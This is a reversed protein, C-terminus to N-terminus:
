KFEKVDHNENVYLWGKNSFLLSLVDKAELKKLRVADWLRVFDEVRLILINNQAAVEYDQKDIKRDKDAWSGAQLNCNAILLAPFAEDLKNEERHNFLSFIASKKFGKVMSKVEVIINKEGAENLIWFDEKYKEDRQVKLGIYESIFRPISSELIYESQFLLNKAADFPRLRSFANELKHELEDCEQRIASEEQFFPSTGWIPIDSSSKAIYTILCDILSLLGGALDKKRTYDRQFPLYVIRGKRFNLVFGVAFEGFNCIVEDFKGNDYTTFGNYSAGWKNLFPKFENRVVDTTILLDKGAHPRINYLWRFGIQFDRCKAIDSKAMYGTKYGYQDHGPVIEKYHVFCFSTGADLADIMQKEFIDQPEARVSAGDQFAAYDLIVLSYTSLRELLEYNTPFPIVHITASDHNLDAKSLGGVLKNGFLLINHGAKGTAILDDRKQGQLKM